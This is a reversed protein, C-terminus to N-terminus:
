SKAKPQPQREERAENAEVRRFLKGFVLMALPTLAGFLGIWVWVMYHDPYGDTSGEPLYSALLLGSMPGAVLQGLFFPLYSLAIYSGEKGPPAVEATFQIVRPAWISEGVSFMAIFIVLSLYLPQWDSPPLSLWRVFVLEGFGGDILPIFLDPSLTAIWVSAASITCGWLLMTYTRVRATLIAFVPALFVIIMPNLVAYLNGVPAGDGFMRIGYTPFILLFHVSVVRIFTTIGLAAIFMWFRRELAVRYLSRGTEQVASSIATKIERVSSRTQAVKSAVLRVGRETMEVNDRMLGIVLLEPLTLGFAVAIILQYVSMEGVFPLIAVSSYDGFIGRMYDFIWGGAAFGLNLLTIFLGFALSMGAATTFRRLAVLLVPGTIAVGFALPLFGFLTVLVIDDLLPLSFRGILLAVTGFLLTRKIGVVDCVAGVLIMLASVAVMWAGVYSGAGVDTLGVDYSLYLVYSLICAAFASYEILKTFLVLYLERPSGGLGRAYSRIIAVFGVFLVAISVAIFLDVGNGDGAMLREWM